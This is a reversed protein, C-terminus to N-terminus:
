SDLLLTDCKDVHHTALQKARHALALDRGFTARKLLTAHAVKVDIRYSLHQGVTAAHQTAELLSLFAAYRVELYPIDSHGTLWAHEREASYRGACEAFARSLSEQAPLETSITAM